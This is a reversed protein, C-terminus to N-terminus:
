QQLTQLLLITKQVLLTISPVGVLEEYLKERSTGIIEGKIALCGTYQSLELKQNFSANYAQESIIDGYDLHPSILSKYITLLAPRPKINQPKFLLGITKNVRNLIM